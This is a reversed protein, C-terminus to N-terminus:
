NIICKDGDCFKNKEKEKIDDEINVKVKTLDLKKIHKIREEYQEKTITEYPAQAYGHESLPLFSVAKIKDEYAELISKLDKAEEKRFTVTQSVNNDSWYYQLDANLAMQEWVSVDDKSKKFNETRVPFEFVWSNDKYVSQEKKYGAKELPKIWPSNKQIEMRRTYHESHPWHTGPSVQPLLSVTGSPKVTSKKISEPICLWSSYKEDLENVRKYGKDCFDALFKRRGFKEIADVIGSMSLGIRRNKLMVQNTIHCHTPILTVTKAYLYAYKLTEYYEEFSDHLSPFTEVLCCLEHDFLSQESCPNTGCVLKDKWTIGDKIRGYKRMNELYVYGPEGSKITQEVLDTYDQGEAVIVSNNSAWRHSLMEEQYKEPNKLELYEKDDPKGLSLEASRRIGGSVVIKGAINMLDVITASTIEKDINKNLVKKIEELGTILPQPGPAIGGFTKILSGAPRIKSFDFEKPLKAKGVYADLIIRFADVWAEKTDLIVHIHESTKPEQIKIKGKGETDFAVGVGYLCMDMLWCFPDSFNYNIDKTSIFACNNLAASGKKYILDTGMVWLGRGPPLFKFNWMKEFMIQASKQAKHANWPLRLNKCHNLQITYCGETVRKLTEWFEEYRDENDVVRAYSRKYTIYGIPGWNPQKDKFQDLFKESLKFRDKIPFIYEEEINKVDEREVVM